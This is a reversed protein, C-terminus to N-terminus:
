QAHKLPSVRWELIIGSIDQIKAVTDGQTFGGQV